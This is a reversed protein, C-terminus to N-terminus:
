QLHITILEATNKVEICVCNKISYYPHEYEPLPDFETLKGLFAIDEQKTPYHTGNVHAEFTTKGHFYIRLQEFKSPFSGEAVGIELTNISPNWTILRSYYDGNLYAKSIGDDEYHLYENSQQGQYVHLHLVGDHADATHSIDSQLALIASAKVYVPLYNLPCDQYITQKGQHLQDDFLYYWEGEPLYVKTIEKHSEIPAILLQDCFIYQNQFVSEYIKPDFSYDIALSKSVPLGTEVSKKFSSYITPLMRYRLKMYNRSIEEVEEGFAWPEADSSNIMSHARYFPAFAAISMWRAFLGKTAEGAFGGVDYGAFSVGSLGLSNVLRVGALMHEESAVNDGTWAAAYRQIGSFGARTLVFAREQPNQLEAGEKASRAMQYGYINRAKRHSVQEGEYSFEILNPTFQGWSAPENMDTWYGDVGAEKYFAMQEGWWQRTEEKTFDPFACWGPWVQGEYIAGDPYKVFLDKALGDAYPAYSSDTKVGPDMIIVVRFGMSKLQTIMEQPDSFKVPDFTFVKYKDMHHIDLYIVDAPMQKDRFTKALTLVESDPYYSYRCQQFGLSWLPPMEMTGTLKCYAQIIDAVKEEHFFYYDMDGDDASYYIFRNNSAGFNFITKHTNDFFIGYARDQHIGIYFPISMYLPDDGIGYGFYDTNWNTYASGARNLGGTKEGLGIFKEDPQVRKYNTVETGLWSVGFAPDDQNLINGSTDLFSLHFPALNVECTIKSTKLVIKENSELIEFPTLEPASIVSYPNSSFQSEKGVQVRITNADYVTLRFFARETEGSIGTASKEWFVITGANSNQKSNPPQAVSKM